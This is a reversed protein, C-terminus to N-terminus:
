QEDLTLPENSTFDLDVKFVSCSLGFVEEKKELPPISKKSKKIKKGMGGDIRDDHFFSKGEKKM